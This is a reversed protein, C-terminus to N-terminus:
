RGESLEMRDMLGTMSAPTRDWIMAAFDQKTNEVGRHVELGRRIAEKDMLPEPPIALSM